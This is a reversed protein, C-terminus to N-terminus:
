PCLLVQQLFKITMMIGKILLMESRNWLTNCSFCNRVYWTGQWQFHDMLHVSMCYRCRSVQGFVKYVMVMWIGHPLISIFSEGSFYANSFLRNLKRVGAHGYGRKKDSRYEKSAVLMGREYFVNDFTHSFNKVHRLWDSVEPGDGLLSFVVFAKSLEKIRNESFDLIFLIM